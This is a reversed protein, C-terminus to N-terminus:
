EAQDTEATENQDPQDDKSDTDNPQEVLGIACRCDPHLTPGDVDGFDDSHFQGGIPATKGEMALCDPCTRDDPTVIWEQVMTDPLLGDQKASQWAAGQGGCLADITETRAILESRYELLRRGYADCADNVQQATQDGQQTLDDWRNIVAAVQRSHLGIFTKITKATQYPHGGNDMAFSILKKVGLKQDDTVETILDGVHQDAWEKAYPNNLTFSGTIGISQLQETARVGCQLVVKLIAPTLYGKLIAQYADWPLLSTMDSEDAEGALQVLNQQLGKLDLNDRYHAVANSFATQVDGQNQDAIGQLEEWDAGVKKLRYIARDFAQAIKVLAARNM